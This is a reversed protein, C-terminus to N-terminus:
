NRDKGVGDGVPRPRAPADYKVLSHCCTGPPGEQFMYTVLMIIDSINPVGGSCNLDASAMHPPEPGGQFMYNTMYTLDNIDPAEDGSNDIDM